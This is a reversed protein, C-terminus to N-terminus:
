KLLRLEPVALVLTADWSTVYELQRIIEEELNWPLILIYEPKEERLKEESVVPIRSGPTFLGQKKPNKDVIFDIENHTLGCYNLFTNGKAAAGYCAVRKGASLVDYVFKCFSIKISHCINDFNSYFDESAVGLNKETERFKRLKLTVDFNESEAHTLYYRNSGGHITLRDVDFVKLGCREAINEVAKLSLYSYHEHYITDFLRNKVLEIVSPNEITIVGNTALCIKLGQAFDNINPVHAFVNNAIILDFPQRESTLEHAFASSFFDCIVEFGRSKALDAAARTPEIGILNFGNDRFISQLYGDNSAIELYNGEKSFPQLKSIDRFYTECHEIFTQSFSSFYPYNENFLIAAGVYDQTQALWCDKCVFVKLPFYQESQNLNQSSLFANSPPSIGLDVMKILNTSNCGRCKM